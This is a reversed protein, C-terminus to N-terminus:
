AKTQRRRAVGLLVLSLGVLAISTPEPVSMSDRLTGTIFDDFGLFDYQGVPVSSPQVVTFLVRNFQVTDNAYGFFALGGNNARAEAAILNRELLRGTSSFVEIKLSGDFDGVDTLFTGFASVADSFDISVSSRNTELWGSSSTSGAVPTNVPDGTTNFRGHWSTMGNTRRVEGGVGAPGGSVTVSVGSGSNFLNILTGLNSVPTMDFSETRSTALSDRFQNRKSLPDQDTGVGDVVRGNATSNTGFYSIAAAQASTTAVIAVLLAIGAKLTHGIKM